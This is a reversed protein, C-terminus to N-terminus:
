EPTLAVPNLPAQGRGHVSSCGQSFCFHLLLCVGARKLEKGSYVVNVAETGKQSIKVMWRKIKNCIGLQVTQRCARVCSVAKEEKKKKGKENKSCDASCCRPLWRPAPHRYLLFLINRLSSTFSTRGRKKKGAGRGIKLTNFFKSAIM